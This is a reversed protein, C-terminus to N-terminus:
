WGNALDALGGTERATRIRQLQELDDFSVIAAVPKGYRTILVHGGQLALDICESFHAKVQDASLTIRIM